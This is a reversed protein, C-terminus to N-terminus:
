SPLICLTYLSHHNSSVMISGRANDATSLPVHASRLMMKISRAGLKIIASYCFALNVLSINIYTSKFFITTDFFRLFGINNDKYPYLAIYEDTLSSSIKKLFVLPTHHFPFKERTTM